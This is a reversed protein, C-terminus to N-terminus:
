QTWLEVQDRWRRLLGGQAVSQLVHLPAEALVKDGLSITLEGLEVGKDLPAFLQEPLSVNAKLDAYRGRPFTLYLSKAIGLEVKPQAGKWLRATTVKAGPKYVLRTEYNQYGFDLLVKSQRARSNADSAGMVVSVLRMGDRVASAVLCYGAASTHGTKIGDVTRDRWLLKNRNPQSINNHKYSKEKHWVYEAPFRAILARALRALDNATTFHEDATLGHPNTFNSRTMGLNKAYRNMLKAFAADSGSVHEAVAVSADNGSQIIIGKLLAGVSVRSGEEVFMRSGEMARARPSIRVEDDLRVRGAAIESLAVFVTMIKTLSAPHVRADPRFSSLVKGSHFDLLVHAKAELEPPSAPGPTQASAITFALCLSLAWIARM